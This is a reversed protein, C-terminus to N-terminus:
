EVKIITWLNTTAGWNGGVEGPPPPSLNVTVADSGISRGNSIYSLANIGPTIGTDLFIRLGPYNVHNGSWWDLDQGKSLEARVLHAGANILYHERSGEAQSQLTYLGYGFEGIRQFTSRWHQKKNSEDVQEVTVKRAKTGPDVEEGIQLALWPRAASKLVYVGNEIKDKPDSM